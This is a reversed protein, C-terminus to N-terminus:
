KRIGIFILDYLKDISPLCVDINNLREAYEAAFKDFRQVSIEFPDM